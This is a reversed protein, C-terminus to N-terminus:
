PNVRVTLSFTEIPVPEWLRKYVLRLHAAGSAMAKFHFTYTGGAGIENSDPKYTSDVFPLVSSETEAVVWQYGTTPNGSLVVDLDVGNKITVTKGDHERTIVISQDPSSDECGTLAILIGVVILLGYLGRM